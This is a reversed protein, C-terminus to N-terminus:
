HIVPPCRRQIGIALRAADHSELEAETVALVVPSDWGHRRVAFSGQRDPANRALLSKTTQAPVVADLSTGRDNTVGLSEPLLSVREEPAFDTVHAQSLHIACHALAEGLRM